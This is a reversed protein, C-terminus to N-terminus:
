HADIIIGDRDQINFKANCDLAIQLQFNVKTRLHKFFSRSISMGYGNDKIFSISTLFGYINTHNNHVIHENFTIELYDDTHLISFGNRANIVSRIPRINTM